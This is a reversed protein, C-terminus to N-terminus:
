IDVKVELYMEIVEVKQDDPIQYDLCYKNCKRILERPNEGTFMPLDIRPPNPVLIKSTDKRATRNNDSGIQLRQNLPPTPLLPAQEVRQRDDDPVAKDKSIVVRVFASLEQKMEAVLNEVRKGNEELETRFERQM